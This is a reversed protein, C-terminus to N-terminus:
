EMSKKRGIPPLPTKKTPIFDLESMYQEKMLDQLESLLEEANNPNQGLAELKRRLQVILEQQITLARQAQEYDAELVANPRNKAVQSLLQRAADGQKRNLGLAAELETIRNRCLKLERRLENIEGILSVNEQMIRVYGVRHVESDRALKRRLGSVSRELHERQRAFEKQIDADVTAEGTLDEHIHKKYLAVVSAKLVKPDQISGVCNFLDTKFRRVLAEQDRTNQREQVLENEVCKHRQKLEAINLELQGNQKHFRELEAEMEQIQEKYNKIDNERPEIQKKLEKIKYDLVFKFKELEQNKKKLDYIRKEKDQITEDREQIEKRLGQIDKELHRIVTNLKQTEVHFKKLEEKHDDIEKQLSNFKKKMIGSEGKLRANAEREDRLRREYRIKTELIERDADEEILRKTVEYELTQERIERSLNEMAANKEALKSDYFENLEELMRERSEEMTKLKKDYEDEKRQAAGQLEQFKEYETMLKSNSVSELEQLERSHKEMVEQLQVEHHAADREKETRLLQNKTKLTEMEQIFKETLEKIRENYNMDKLRLQYENEMKLEDVRTKLEAMIANKEELDSKTILIEEAWTTEKESKGVRADREQLRWVMVACDDSVTVLFEDNATLQMKTIPACHGIFDQWEPKDTLPFVFSRLHGSQCGCFLMRGSRSLVVTTLLDEQSTIERTIQSDVIEKLSKDSGVAYTTKTDASVTVSTYSCAKLVSEGTRTGKQSDWEYVAGDMGCSILKNDDHSWVICRIKGNHGKLNTVNEFTTLSFIQIVNGNVAALLHGGNSFACERCGRIPFEHFTRIDDILLNMLRLKDSFGVLIYLGTPHLAISYAEEAFQKCLELSNSEFNWIRVSRDAACTAILPKRICTDMGLIQGHHFAQAVPEFTLSEYPVQQNKVPGGAFNKQLLETNKMTMEFSSLSFSYLQHADTSAVMLEESPSIVLHTIKQNSLRDAESSSTPDVPVHISRVLRYIDKSSQGTLNLTPASHTGRSPLDENKEFWHVVGPSCAVALGKSTAVIATISREPKDGSIETDKTELISRSNDGPKVLSSVNYEFKPEGNELLIWKGEETGVVLKEETVWDQCLFNQPEVKTLGYPKLNGDGYRYLRFIDSGIVCIQTCDHPNFSIQRIQNGVSTRVCALQKSKEWSWYVLTWDPNAGQAALYKSDPSFAISAFETSHVDPSSIIKKRRLAQLDYITIVPKEATKEGLAVYRRNPSIAMATMGTSKDLGGIFKQTKQETNYLVLNSGCPFVITQEDQFVVSGSIGTRFGFVQQLHALGSMTLVEYVRQTNGHCYKGNLERWM